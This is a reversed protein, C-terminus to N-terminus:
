KGDQLFNALAPFDVNVDDIVEFDWMEDDNSALTGPGDPNKKVEALVQKIRDDVKDDLKVAIYLTKM